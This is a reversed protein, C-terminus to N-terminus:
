NSAQTSLSLFHLGSFGQGNCLKSCGWLFSNIFIKESVFMLLKNFSSLGSKILLMEMNCSIFYASTM